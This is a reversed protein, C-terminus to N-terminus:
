QKPSPVGLAAKAREFYARMKELQGLGGTTIRAVLRIDVANAYDNMGNRQWFLAATRFAVDPEAARDPYNVLDVGVAKSLSQYLTRGTILFAGRGKYKAGDGPSFNGLDKRMGYHEEFYSDDGVQTMYKLEVTNVAVAALFAAQQAPTNIGFEAMAKRIHPLYLARDSDKSDPMIQKLQTDTLVGENIPQSSSEDCTVSYTARTSTKEESGLIKLAVWGTAPIVDGRRSFGSGSVDLSYSVEKPGPADFILEEEVTPNDDSRVFQYKVTGAGGKSTITGKFKVSVPCKGKYDPQEAEVAVDGVHFVDVGELSWVRATGDASGTVVYRSDKRSVAVSSLPMIHGRFVARSAVTAPRKSVGGADDKQYPETKARWVRATRDDSITVVWKSDRTFVANTVEREHGEFITPSNDSRDTWDHPSKPEWLYARNASTTTVIFKGDPSFIASLVAGEYGPLRQVVKDEKKSQWDWLWAGDDGAATLVYRGDPSFRVSTIDSIHGLLEALRKGTAVDWVGASSARNGDAVVVLTNDPSFAVDNFNFISGRIPSGELAALNKRMKTDYIMLTGSSAEQINQTIIFRDDPSIVATLATSANWDTQALLTNTEVDWIQTHKEGQFNGTVLMLKGSDSFAVYTPNFNPDKTLLAPNPDGTATDWARVEADDGPADSITVVGSDDPNFSVKFPPKTYGRMVSVSYDASRDIDKIVQLSDEAKQRQEEAVLHQKEAEEKAAVARDSEDQAHKLAGRAIDRQNDADLKALRAADRQKVAEARERDATILASEAIRQQKYAEKKAVEAAYREKEATRLAGQALERQANAEDKRREAEDKQRDAEGKQRVAENKQQFAEGKQQFAYVTAGLMGLLLLSLLALMIRLQKVRKRQETAMAEAHEVKERQRREREEAEVARNARSVELYEVTKDFGPHYREAWPRTPKNDELWKLGISLAPDRLFDEEKPYGAATEALRKYQRASQAEEDVWRRLRRWGRILSEHSIDILTDHTLPVVPPPMLFSRGERRFCEVVPAVEEATAEVVACVEGLTAPRRGERHDAEKETLRKFLTEAIQRERENRLESWAEDAHLSLAEDMEGVAEYCCLDLADGAHAARHEECMGKWEDWTRMLAHQLIPLRAPDEGADNLLRNVLPATIRGGGLIVPGNIAERRDDDTMRPILYQGDNIAEPLGRFHACDGLYDSRMTLIVYISLREERPRGHQRAELLLKVFAAAEDETTGDATKKRFRFLEEFQDALILLNEHPRMGSQGVVELLGLSSRRLAREITTLRLGEGEGSGGFVGPESLASALNAIPSAGPRFIAVRWSSGASTM